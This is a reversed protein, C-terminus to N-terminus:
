REFNKCAQVKLIKFLKKKNFEIKERIFRQM